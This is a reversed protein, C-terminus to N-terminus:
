GKYISRALMLLERESPELERMKGRLEEVFEEFKKDAGNKKAWVAKRYKKSVAKMFYHFVIKDKEEHDINFLQRNMDNVVGILDPYYSLINTLFYSNAIKKDFKIEKKGNIAAVYDFISAKKEKEKPKNGNLRDREENLLEDFANMIL